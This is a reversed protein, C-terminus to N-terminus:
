SQGLNILNSWPQGSAAITSLILQDHSRQQATTPDCAIAGHQQYIIEHLMRDGPTYLM